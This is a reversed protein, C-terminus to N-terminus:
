YTWINVCGNRCRDLGNLDVQLLREQMRALRARRREVQENEQERIDRIGQEMMDNNSRRRQQVEQSESVIVASRTAGAGFYDDMTAIKARRAEQSISIDANIKETYNEVGLKLTEGMSNLFVAQQHATRSRKGFAAQMKKADEIRRRIMEESTLPLGGSRWETTLIFAFCKNDKNWCGNKGFCGHSM